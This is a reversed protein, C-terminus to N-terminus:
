KSVQSLINIRNYINPVLFFNYILYSSKSSITDYKSKQREIFLFIRGGATVNYTQNSCPVPITDNTLCYSIKIAPNIAVDSAYLLGSITMNSSPIPCLLNSYFNLTDADIWDVNNCAGLTIPVSDSSGRKKINLKM